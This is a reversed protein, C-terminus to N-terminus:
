VVLHRTAVNPIVTGYESLFPRALQVAFKVVEPGKSGLVGIRAVCIESVVFDMPDDGRCKM